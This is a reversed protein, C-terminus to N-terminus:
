GVRLKWFTTLLRQLGEKDAYDTVSGLIGLGEARDHVEEEPASTIIITATTWSIALLDAILKVGSDPGIEDDVVVLDPPSTRCYDLAERVNDLVTVTMGEAGLAEKLPAAGTPDKVVALARWKKEENENM